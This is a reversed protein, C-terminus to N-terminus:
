TNFISPDVSSKKSPHECRGKDNVSLHTSRSPPPTHTALFLRIIIIIKFLLDCKRNPRRTRPSSPVTM